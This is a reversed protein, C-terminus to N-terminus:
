VELFMQFDLKPGLAICVIRPIKKPEPYGGVGLWIGDVCVTICGFAM